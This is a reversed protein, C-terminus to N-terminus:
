LTIIDTGGDLMKRIYKLDNTIDSLLIADIEKMKSFPATRKIKLVLRTIENIDTSNDELATVIEDLRGSTVLKVDTRMPRSLYSHISKIANCKGVEEGKNIIGTLICLTDQYKSGDISDHKCLRIINEVLEMSVGYEKLIEYLVAGEKTKVDSEGILYAISVEFYDALTELNLLTPNKNPDNYYSNLTSSSIPTGLEEFIIGLSNFGYNAKSDKSKEIIRREDFLEKFRDQFTQM